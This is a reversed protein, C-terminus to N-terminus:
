HIVSRFFYFFYCVSTDSHCLLFFGRPINFLPAKRAAEELGDIEMTKWVIM